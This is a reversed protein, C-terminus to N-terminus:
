PLLVSRFALRLGDARSPAVDHYRAGGSKTRLDALDRDCNTRASDENEAEVFEWDARPMYHTDLRNGRHHPAGSSM